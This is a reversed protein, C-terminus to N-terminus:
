RANWSMWDYQATVPGTYAFPGLWDDIGRGTWLNMMLQGPHTPLPGRAGYEGHVKRGDVFWEISTPTWTFAYTHYAASADFGLDIVTEHGGTGNTFYNTHLKTPDKGLIEIDIEDWPSGNYVFFSSVVGSGRAAKMRVQYTGYGYKANSRYEGSAYPMGSCQAPCGADNLTLTMFGGGFTVNSAKWGVNFISGNTWGDAKSWARTNYTDFADQLSTATKARTATLHPGQSTLSSGCATLLLLVPLALPANRM